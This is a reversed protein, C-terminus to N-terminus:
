LRFRSKIGNYTQAVEGATLARNYLMACYIHGIYPDWGGQNAYGIQINQAKPLWDITATGTSYLLGNYYYRMARGSVTAFIIEPTNATPAPGSIQSNSGANNIVFSHVNSQMGIMFGHEVHQAHGLYSSYRYAPTNIAIGMTFDSGTIPYYTNQVIDSTVTSNTGSFYFSTAGFSSSVTTGAPITATGNTSLNRWTTGAGTYSKSNGADHCMILGATSIKPGNYYSM